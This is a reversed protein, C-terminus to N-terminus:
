EGELLGRNRRGISDPCYVDHANPRRSRAAPSSPEIPDIPSQKVVADGLAEESRRLELQEVFM